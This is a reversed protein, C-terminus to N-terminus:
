SAVLFYAPGREAGAKYYEKALIRTFVETIFPDM